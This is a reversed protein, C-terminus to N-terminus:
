SEIKKKGLNLRGQKLKMSGQESFGIKHVDLDSTLCFDELAILDLLDTKIAEEAKQVLLLFFDEVKEKRLPFYKSPFHTKPEWDDGYFHKLSGIAACKRGMEQSLQINVSMGDYREKRFIGEEWHDANLLSFLATFTPRIWKSQMFNGFVILFRRGTFYFSANSYRGWSVTSLKELKEDGFLVPIVMKKLSGIKEACFFSAGNILLENSVIGLYGFPNKIGTKYAQIDLDHKVPSLAYKSTASDLTEVKVNISHKDILRCGVWSQTYVHSKIPVVM